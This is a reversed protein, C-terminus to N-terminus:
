ATRGFIRHVEARIAWIPHRAVGAIEDRVTGPQFFHAVVAIALGIGLGAAGVVARRTAVGAAIGGIMVVDGITSLVSTAATQHRDLLQERYAIFQESMPEAHAGDPITAASEVDHPM